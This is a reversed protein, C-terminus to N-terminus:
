GAKMMKVLHAHVDAPIRNRYQWHRLHLALATRLRGTGACEGFLEDVVVRIVPEKGYQSVWRELVLWSDPVTLESRQTRHNTVRLSLSNRWLVTLQQSLNGDPELRGLPPRAPDAGDIVALRVFALASTYLGGPSGSTVWETLERLIWAASESSYLNGISGAVARSVEADRGLAIKRLAPLARDPASLGIRSGLAHAAVLREGRTGDVLEALKAYVLPAVDRDGVASELVMAAIRYDRLKRSRTWPTVFKGIAAAFDFTALIGAAHAAKTQVSPDGDEATERLWAILPERITPQEEWLVRLTAKEARRRLHVTPGAGAAGAPRTTADAYELWGRLHQWAPPRQEGEVSDVQNIHEALKMAKDSVIVEPLGNLVAASTMFCRGLVPGGEALRRGIDDRARRPLAERLEDLSSGAALKAVLLCALEAAKGPSNELRLDDDIEARLPDLRHEDVGASRAECELRRRFVEVAAPPVHDVTRLSRDPWAGPVLAVVRCQREEAHYRLRETVGELRSQDYVLSMDFVYGHQKRLEPHVRQAASARIIGVHVPDADSASPDATRVWDLLAAFAATARGTGTAGRLLLLPERDLAAALEAQSGPKVLCGVLRDADKRSLYIVPQGLGQGASGFTINGSANFISGGGTVRNADRGIWDRGARAGDEEDLDDLNQKRQQWQREDDEARKLYPREDREAKEPRDPGPRPPDEPSGPKAPEEPKVPEAPKAPEAPSPPKDAPPGASRSKDPAGEADPSERAPPDEPRGPEGRPEDTM